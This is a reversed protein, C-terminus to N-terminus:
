AAHAATSAPAERPAPPDFYAQRGIVRDFASWTDGAALEKQLRDFSGLRGSLNDLFHVLTAERTAPIVPSGHELAGHHSLIIHLLAQATHAPFAPLSEIERRVRYYGLPIEGLLRGADTMDITLSASASTYAELKGIDHLLAGTIALDRDVDPFTASVASVSEAVALSHELLGHRYAHHYRKAAPADRYPPWTPSGNGLMRELLAHLHGDRVTDVLARLAAVLQPLPRAPGDHLAAPDYSGAAAARVASVVIQAGHRPHVEFRGTIRVAEGPVLLDVAEDVGEWVLAPVTGTRDGVAAKAFRRGDRGCRVDASRVLLVQDLDLGDTFECVPMAAVTPLAGSADRLSSSSTMPPPDGTPRDVQRTRLM